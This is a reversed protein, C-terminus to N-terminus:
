RVDDDVTFREPAVVPHVLNLGPNLGASELSHDIRLVRINALTELCKLGTPRTSHREKRM